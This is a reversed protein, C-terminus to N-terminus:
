AGVIRRVVGRLPKPVIRLTHELADRLEQAQRERVDDVLARVREQAEPGLAKVGEPQEIV